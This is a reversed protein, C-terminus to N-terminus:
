YCRYSGCLTMLMWLCILHKRYKLPVEQFQKGSFIHRIQVTFSIHVQLVFKDPESLKAPDQDYQQFKKVEDDDPAYLLLQKIHSPELRDTTMTMLIQRLEAPSLKLHAILIAPSLLWPSLSCVEGRVNVLWKIIFVMTISPLLEKGKSEFCGWSEMAHIERPM